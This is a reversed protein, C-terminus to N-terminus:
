VGFESEYLQQDIAAEEANTPQYGELISTVNGETDFLMSVAYDYSYSFKEDEVVGNSNVYSKLDTLVGYLIIVKDDFEVDVRKM